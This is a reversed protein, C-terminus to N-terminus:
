DNTSIADPNGAFDIAAFDGGQFTAAAVDNYEIHEVQSRWDEANDQPAYGLRFANTNDWWSHPNASVGYVIEFHLDANLGITVLQALDRYSLWTSLMRRNTPEPFCSGIRICFAQLDYKDAYLRALSEGFVKSVGYLSDPRVPSEHDLKRERRHFGVAHNSSAFVIRKVGVRRAAEWLNYVGEINSRQITPWRAEKSQGGLHVVADVGDLLSMVTFSDALDCRLWEEKDGVPTPLPAIDSLRLRECQRALPERLAQGLQGAAGTLLLRNFRITM